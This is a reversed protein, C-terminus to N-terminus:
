SQIPLSTSKSNTEHQDKPTLGCGKCNTQEAFFLQYMHKLLFVGSLGVLLIVVIQQMV